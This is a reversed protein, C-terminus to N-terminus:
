PKPTLPYPSGRGGEGEEGKRAMEKVTVTVTLTV